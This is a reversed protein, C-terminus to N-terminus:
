NTNARQYIATVVHTAGTVYYGEYNMVKGTNASVLKLHGVKDGVTVHVDTFDLQRKNLPYDCKYFAEKASFLITAHRQQESEDTHEKLIAIESATFLRSWLAPKMREIEELDIGISRYGTEPAVAAIGYKDTHSISGVVGDPWQPCGKEDKGIFTTMSDLQVLAQHAFQRGWSFERQRKEGASDVLQWEDPGIKPPAQNVRGGSLFLASGM